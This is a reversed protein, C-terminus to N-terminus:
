PKGKAKVIADKGADLADEYEGPEPEGGRKGIGSELHLIWYLAAFLDPAAAVLCANSHAEAACRGEVSITRGEAVKVFWGHTKETETIGAYEWPGPTHESM